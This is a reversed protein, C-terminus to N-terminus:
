VMGILTASDGSHKILCLSNASPSMPGHAPTSCYLSTYVMLAVPRQLGFGFVMGPLVEVLRATSGEYIMDRFANSVWFAVKRANNNM